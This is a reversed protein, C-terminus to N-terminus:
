RSLHHQVPRDFATRNGDGPAALEVVNYLVDLDIVELEAFLFHGLDVGEVLM